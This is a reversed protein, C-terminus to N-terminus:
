AADADEDVIEVLSEEREGCQPCYYPPDTHLKAPDPSPIGDIEVWVEDWTGLWQCETCRVMNM